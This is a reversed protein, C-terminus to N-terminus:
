QQLVEYRERIQGLAIRSGVWVYDILAIRNVIGFVLTSAYLFNTTKRAGITM